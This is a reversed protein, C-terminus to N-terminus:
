FALLYSPKGKRRDIVGTLGETLYHRCINFLQMRKYGEIMMITEYVCITSTDIGRVRMM